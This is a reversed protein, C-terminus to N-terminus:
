PCGNCQSGNRKKRDTQASCRARINDMCIPNECENRVWFCDMEVIGVAVVNNHTIVLLLLLCWSASFAFSGTLRMTCVTARRARAHIWICVIFLFISFLLFPFFLFSVVIFKLYFLLLIIRFARRVCVRMHIAASRLNFFSEWRKKMMLM